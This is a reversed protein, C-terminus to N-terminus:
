RVSVEREKTTARQALQFSLHNVAPSLINFSDLVAKIGQRRASEKQRAESTKLQCKPMVMM